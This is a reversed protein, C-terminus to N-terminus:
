MGKYIRGDDMGLFLCGKWYAISVPKIESRWTVLEKTRAPDAADAVLVTATFLRHDAAGSEDRLLYLVEGTEDCLFVDAISRHFLTDLRRARGAGDLHWLAERGKRERISTYTLGSDADVAATLGWLLGTGDPLPQAGLAFVSSIDDGPEPTVPTTRTGDWRENVVLIREGEFLSYYGFLCLVDQLPLLHRYRTDGKGQQDPHGARHATRFVKGGTRSEWLYRFINGAEWEMRDDAGSGAAYVSGRWAAVDHVHEGGNITRFKLWQGDHLRYVNGQIAPRSTAEDPDHSDLGAQWLEGDVLRFRDLHEEGSALVSRPVPNDPSTFCRFEIGRMGYGIMRTGLNLNADGYGFWLSDGHPALDHIGKLYRDAFREDGERWDEAFAKYDEIPRSWPEFSRITTAGALPHQERARAQDVSGAIASSSLLAVALALKLKM